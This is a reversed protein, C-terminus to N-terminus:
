VNSQSVSAPDVVTIGEGAEFRRFDALNFTLLHTLGHAKMAAVLRADHSPKGSVGYTLILRKWNAFIAANDPLPPYLTEFTSLLGHAAAPSLGLGGNSTSPRTAVAYFEILNQPVTLLSVKGHLVTVANRASAHHPHSPQSLRLMINSDLLFRVGSYSPAAAPTGAPGSM